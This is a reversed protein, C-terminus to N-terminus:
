IAKALCHLRLRTTGDLESSRLWHAEARLDPPGCVNVYKLLPNALRIVNLLPPAYSGGYPGAGM